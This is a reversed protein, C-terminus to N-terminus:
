LGKALQWIFYLGALCTGIVMLRKAFLLGNAEDGYFHSGGSGFERNRFKYSLLGWGFGITTCLILATLGNWPKPPRNTLLYRWGGLGVAFVLFGLFGGMLGFVAYLIKDELNKM